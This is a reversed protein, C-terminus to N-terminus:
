YFGAEGGGKGLFFPRGEGNGGQGGRVRGFSKRTPRKELRRPAGGRWWKCATMMQVRMGGRSKRTVGRRAARAELDSGEDTSGARRRRPRQPSSHRWVPTRRGAPVPLSSAVDLETEAKHGYAPRRRWQCAKPRSPSPRGSAPPAGGWGEEDGGRRWVCTM